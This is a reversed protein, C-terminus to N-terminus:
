FSVEVLFQWALPLLTIWRAFILTKGFRNKKFCLSLPLNLFSFLSNPLVFNNEYKTRSIRTGISDYVLSYEIKKVFRWYKSLHQLLKRLLISCILTLPKDKKNKNWWSWIEEIHKKSTNFKQEWFEYHKTNTNFTIEYM